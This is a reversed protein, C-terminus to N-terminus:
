EGFIVVTKNVLKKVLRYPRRSLVTRRGDQADVWM